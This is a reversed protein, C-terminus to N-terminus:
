APRTTVTVVTTMHAVAMSHRSFLMEKHVGWGGALSEAEEKGVIGM